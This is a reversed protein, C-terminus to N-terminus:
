REVYADRLYLESLPTMYYGKVHPAMMFTVSRHYLPLIAVDNMAIDEAKQM